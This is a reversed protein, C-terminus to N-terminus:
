WRDSYPKTHNSTDSWNYLQWHTWHGICLAHEIYMSIWIWPITFQIHFPYSKLSKEKRMEKHKTNPARYYYEMYVITISAPHSYITFLSYLICKAMWMEVLRGFICDIWNDEVRVACQSSHSMCCVIYLYYAHIVIYIFLLCTKTKRICKLTKIKYLKYLSSSYFKWINENYLNVYRKYQEDLWWVWNANLACIHM